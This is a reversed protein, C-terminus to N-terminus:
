SSVAPRRGLLWWAVAGGAIVLALVLGVIRGHRQM